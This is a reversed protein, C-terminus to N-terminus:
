CTPSTSRPTARRHCQGANFFWGGIRGEDTVTLRLIGGDDAPKLGAAARWPAVWEPPGDFWDRPPYAPVPFPEDLGHMAAAQM